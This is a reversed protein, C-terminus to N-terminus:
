LSVPSAEPVRPVGVAPRVAAFESLPKGAVSLRRLLPAPEFRPGHKAALEDLKTVITETGATDAFRALGGRFPALGTGLVTALDVADTSDTVGKDLLKAAENVMPLVLRWQISEAVSPPLVGSAAERVVGCGDNRNGM